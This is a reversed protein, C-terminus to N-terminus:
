LHSIYMRTLACVSALTSLSHTSFKQVKLVYSLLVSLLVRICMAPATPTTPTQVLELAAITCFHDTRGQPSSRSGSEAEM